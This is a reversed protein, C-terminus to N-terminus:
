QLPLREPLRTVPALRIMKTAANIPLAYTSAIAKREDSYQHTAQIQKSGSNQAIRVKFGIPAEREPAMQPMPKKRKEIKPVSATSDDVEM